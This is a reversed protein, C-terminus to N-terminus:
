KKSRLTHIINLQNIQAGQQPRQNNQTRPNAEPQSPLKSKKRENVTTAFQGLQM